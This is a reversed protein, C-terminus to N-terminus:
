NKALNYKVPVNIPLTITTLVEEKNLNKIEFNANEGYM